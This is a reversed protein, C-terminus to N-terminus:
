PGILVGVIRGCIKRAGGFIRDDETRGIGITKLLGGFVSQPASNQQLFWGAHISSAEVDMRLGKSVILLSIEIEWTIQLIKNANEVM